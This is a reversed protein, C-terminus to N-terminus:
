EKGYFFCGCTSLQLAVRPATALCRRTSFLKTPMMRSCAFAGQMMKLYRHFDIPIWGFRPSIGGGRVVINNGWALQGDQLGHPNGDSTRIPIVNSNVGGSFDIQGTVLREGEKPM